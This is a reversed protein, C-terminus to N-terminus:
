RSDGSIVMILDDDGPVVGDVAYLTDIEEDPGASLVFVDETYGSESGGVSDAVPDLFRVNIAYRNGWPDSRVPGSLYPGRWAFRANFGSMQQFAFQEPPANDLHKATRYHTGPDNGPTNQVLHNSITDVQHGDVTRRWRWAGDVSGSKPEDPLDRDSVLTWVLQDPDPSSPNHSGWGTSDRSGNGRCRFAQEGTDALFVHVASSIAKLDGRARALRAERLYNGIGPLLTLGLVTLVTLIITVEVLTFGREWDVAGAAAAASAGQLSHQRDVSRSRMM